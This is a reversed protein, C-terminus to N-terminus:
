KGVENASEAKYMAKLCWQIYDEWNTGSPGSDGDKYPSNNATVIAQLKKCNCLVEKALRLLTRGSIPTENAPAKRCLLAKEISGKGVFIHMKGQRHLMPPISLELDAGTTSTGVTKDVAASSPLASSVFLGQFRNLGYLFQDVYCITEEDNGNGFCLKTMLQEMAAETMSVGAGTISPSDYCAFAIVSQLEMLLKKSM